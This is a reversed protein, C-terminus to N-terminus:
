NNLLNIAINVHEDQLGLTTNTHVIHGKHLYLLDGIDDDIIIYKPKYKNNKIFLTLYHLIENGRNRDSHLPTWDTISIGYKSLQNNLNVVAPSPTTTARNFGIRWSSSLIIEAGTSDVIRKLRYIKDGPLKILHSVTPEGKQKRMHINTNPNLVGDVDLFILKKQYMIEGRKLLHNLFYYFLFPHLSVGKEKLLDM